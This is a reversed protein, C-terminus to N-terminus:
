GAYQRHQRGRDQDAPRGAARRAPRGPAVPCWPRPGPRGRAERASARPGQLVPRDQRQGSGRRPCVPFGVPPGGGGPLVPGVRASPAPVDLDNGAAYVPMGSLPGSAAGPRGRSTGRAATERLVSGARGGNESVASRPPSPPRATRPYVPGHYIEKRISQWLLLRRPQSTQKETSKDTRSKYSISTGNLPPRVEPGGIPEALECRMPFPLLLSTEM